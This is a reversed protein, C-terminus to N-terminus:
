VHGHITFLLASIGEIILVITLVVLVWTLAILWRTLRESRKRLRSIAWVVSGLGGTGRSALEALEEDTPDDRKM